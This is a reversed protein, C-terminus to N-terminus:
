KYDELESGSFREKLIESQHMLYSHGPKLVFIRSPRGDDQVDFNEIWSEPLALVNHPVANEADVNFYAGNDLSLKFTIPADTNSYVRRNIMDYLSSEIVPGDSYRQVQMELSYYGGSFEEM